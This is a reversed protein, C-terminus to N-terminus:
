PGDGRPGDEMGEPWVPIREHGMKGIIWGVPGPPKPAMVPGGPM